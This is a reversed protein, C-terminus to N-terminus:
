CNSCISDSRGEPPESSVVSQILKLLAPLKELSTLTFHNFFTKHTYNILEEYSLCRKIREKHILNYLM